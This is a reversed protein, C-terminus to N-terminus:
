ENFSEMLADLNKEMLKLYGLSCEESSLSEMTWMTSTKVNTSTALTQAVKPTASGEFFITSIDHDKVFDAIKTLQQASPEDDPSIGTVAVQKLGYDNALYNFAAHSVVFYRKNEDVKSISSEFKEDLDKFQALANDLNTKYYDKNSPDMSVLKEYITVLQKSACKISLWTHPNVVDDGNSGTTKLLTLGQSLDLCKDQGVQTKIDDMFGEMGAGNFVVLESDSIAAVSSASMEFGHPEQSSSIITRVEYKDGAITKTLDAVPFFSAYIVPKSDKNSTDDSVKNTCGVSSIAFIFAAVVACIHKINLKFLVVEM